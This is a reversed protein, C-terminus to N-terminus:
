FTGSPDVIKLNTCRQYGCGPSHMTEITFSIKGDNGSTAIPEQERSCFIQIEKIPTQDKDVVTTEFKLTAPTWCGCFSKGCEYAISPTIYSASFLILLAIVILSTIKGM